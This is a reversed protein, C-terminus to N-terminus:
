INRSSGDGFYNSTVRIHNTVERVGGLGRIMDTVERKDGFDDVMGSVTVHGANVSVHYREVGLNHLHQSVEHELEVDRPDSYPDFGM